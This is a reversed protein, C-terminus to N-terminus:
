PCEIGALMFCINPWPFFFLNDLHIRAVKLTQGQPKNITMSFSTKLPFELRKFQFPFNNPIIPIRPILVDQGKAKSTLITAKVINREWYKLELKHYLVGSLEAIKELFKINVQTFSDNKKVLITRECSWNENNINLKLSPFVIATLEDESCVVNCFINTYEMGREDTELRGEEIEPLQRAHTGSELDNYLHVRMDTSVHLKEVTAWLPSAKLCANM